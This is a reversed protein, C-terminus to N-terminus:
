RGRDLGRRRQREPEIPPPSPYRPIANIASFTLTTVYSRVDVGADAPANARHRAALVYNGAQPVSITARGAANTAFYTSQDTDLDGNDYLVLASNGLPQGNFRLEVELGRSVLVENPHTIPVIALTGRAQDVTGRSPAGRSIYADALNVTQITSTDAGEPPVEGAALPRWAGNEAVLTAISGHLEGTTIRYTGWQPLDSELETMTAGAQARSFITEFGDPYILKMDAPLGVASNFFTNAYGATVAVEGDNPNFTNPLIYATYAAAPGAASFLLAAALIQKKM